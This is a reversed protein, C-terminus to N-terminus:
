EDRLLEADAAAGSQAGDLFDDVDVFVERDLELRGGAPVKSFGLGVLGDFVRDHLRNGPEQVGFAARQEDTDSGVTLHDAEAM